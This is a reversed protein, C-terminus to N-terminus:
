GRVSLCVAPGDSGVRRNKKSPGLDSKGSGSHNWFRQFVPSGPAKTPFAELSGYFLKYWVCSAQPSKSFPMPNPELTVKRFVGLLTRSTLVPAVGAFVVIGAGVLLHRRALRWFHKNAFGACMQVECGAEFLHSGGAGREPGSIAGSEWDEKQM